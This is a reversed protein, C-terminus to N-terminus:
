RHTTLYSTFASHLDMLYTVRRVCIEKKNDSIQTTIKKQVSRMKVVKYLEYIRVSDTKRWRIHHMNLCLNQQENDPMNWTQAFTWNNMTLCPENRPLSETTWWWVHNMNPCLNQQENHSMTWTLAFIRNNMIQYPAIKICIINNMVQVSTRNNM